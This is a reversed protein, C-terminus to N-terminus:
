QAEEVERLKIARWQNPSIRSDRALKADDRSSFTMCNDGGVGVVAWIEVPRPKIRYQTDADDFLPSSASFWNGSRAKFEVDAGKAFAEIIPLLEKCRERTM